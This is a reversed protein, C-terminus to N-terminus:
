SKEKAPVSPCGLLGRQLAECILQGIHAAVAPVVANGLAQIRSKRHAQHLRGPLGDDVRCLSAAIEAITKEQTLHWFGSPKPPRTFIFHQPANPSDPEPLRNEQGHSNPETEAPESSQALGRGHSDLANPHGATSRESGTEGDAQRLLAPVLEESAGRGQGGSRHEELGPRESRSDALDKQWAVLFVRKRLHPAGLSAASVITWESDYGLRVLSGVVEGFAEGWNVTLLGPVNEVLVLRPRLICAARAVEPWLWREDTTGKRRGATSSPQCPFGATLLDVPEVQSWDVQRVDGYIPIGPWHKRLTAQCYPEIEAFWAVEYHGTAELGRSIGGIGAFLEGVRVKRQGHAEGGASSV